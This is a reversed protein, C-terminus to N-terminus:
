SLNGREFQCLQDHLYNQCFQFGHEIQAGLSFWFNFIVISMTTRTLMSTFYAIWAGFNIRFNFIKATQVRSVQLM